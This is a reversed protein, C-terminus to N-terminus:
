DDDEGLLELLEEIAAAEEPPLPICDPEGCTWAIALQEQSAYGPMSLWLQRLKGCRRSAGANRQPMFREQKSHQEDSAADPM